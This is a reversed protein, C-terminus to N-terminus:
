SIITACPAGACLPLFLSRSRCLALIKPSVQPTVPKRVRRCHSVLPPVDESVVHIGSARVPAGASRFCLRVGALWGRSAAHWSEKNQFTKMHLGLQRVKAQWLHMGTILALSPRKSKRTRYQETNTHPSPHQSQLFLITSGLGHSYQVAYV